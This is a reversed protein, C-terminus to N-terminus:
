KLAVKGASVIEGEGRAAVVEAAPYLFPIAAEQYIGYEAAVAVLGAGAPPEVIPNAGEGHQYSNMLETNAYISSRMFGTDVQGNNTVNVKAEAEILLAAKAIMEPTAGERLKLLIKDGYWKVSM